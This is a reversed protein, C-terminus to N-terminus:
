ACVLTALVADFFRPCFHIIAHGLPVRDRGVDPFVVAAQAACVAGCTFRGTCLKIQNPIDIM